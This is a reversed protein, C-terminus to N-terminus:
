DRLVAWVVLLGAGLPLWAWLTSPADEQQARGRLPPPPPVQASSVRAGPRPRLPGARSLGVQVALDLIEDHSARTRTAQDGWRQAIKEIHPRLRANDGGWNALNYWIRVRPDPPTRTVFDGEPSPDAYLVHHAARTEKDALAAALGRSGASWGILVAPVTQPRRDFQDLWAGTQDRLSAWTQRPSEAVVVIVGEPIEQQRIRNAVFAQTGYGVGPWVVVLAYSPLIEGEAKLFVPPV